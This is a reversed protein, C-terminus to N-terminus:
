IKFIKSIIRTSLKKAKKEYKEKMSEIEKNYEEFRKKIDDVSKCFTTPTSYNRKCIDASTKHILDDSLIPNQYCIAGDVGMDLIWGISGLLQFHKNFCDCWDSWSYKKDIENYDAKIKELISAIYKQCEDIRNKVNIYEEIDKEYNELYKKYEKEEDLKQLRQFTDVLESFYVIGKTDARENYKSLWIEYNNRKIIEIDNKILESLAEINFEDNKIAEKLCSRAKDYEQIKFHKKATELRNSNTKIGDVEVKGSIEIKYKAIADDVIITSNCFSCKAKKMNDDLELQAGCNPCKAPVLNIM